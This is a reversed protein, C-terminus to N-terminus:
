IQVILAEFQLYLLFNSPIDHNILGSVSWRKMHKWDHQVPGDTSTRIYTTVSRPTGASNDRNPNRCSRVPFRDLRTSAHANLSTTQPKRLRKSDKKSSLQIRVPVSIIIQTSCTTPRREFYSPNNVPQEEISTPSVEENFPESSSFRMPRECLDWVVERRLRWRTKMHTGTKRTKTTSLFRKASEVLKPQMRSCLMRLRLLRDIKEVEAM